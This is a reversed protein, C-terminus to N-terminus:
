TCWIEVNNCMGNHTKLHQKEVHKAAKWSTFVVLCANLDFYFMVSCNMRTDAFIWATHTLFVGNGKDNIIDKTTSVVATNKYASHMGEPSIDVVQVLLQLM